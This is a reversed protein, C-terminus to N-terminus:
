GSGARQECDQHNSGQGGIRGLDGLEASDERDLTSLGKKLVLIGDSAGCGMIYM